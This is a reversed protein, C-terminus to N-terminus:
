TVPSGTYAFICSFVVGKLSINKIMEAFKFTMIACPKTAPEGNRM